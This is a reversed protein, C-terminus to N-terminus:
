GYSSDDLQASFDDSGGMVLAIARAVWGGMGLDNRKALRRSGETVPAQVLGGEIHGFLGAGHTRAGHEHRAHLSDHKRNRIGFHAAEAARSVEISQGLHVM